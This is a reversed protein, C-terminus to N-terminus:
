RGASSFRAGALSMKVLNKGLEGYRMKSTGWNRTGLVLPVEVWKKNKLAELIYVQVEFGAPLEGLGDLCDKRYARYGSTGDAVPWRRLRGLVANGLRSAAQRWFPVGDMGGGPVYRSAVAVDAGREIAKVLAPILRPDHTCDADMTVVIDGRATAFGSELAKGLGLNRLHRITRLSPVSRLLEYLVDESADTSGDNVVIIEDVGQAQVGKVVAAINAAENYAPLIVSV